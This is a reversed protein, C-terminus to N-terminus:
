ERLDRYAAIALPVGIGPLFVVIAEIPTPLNFGVVFNVWAVILGAGGFAIFLLSFVEKTRRM